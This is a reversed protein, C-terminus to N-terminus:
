VKSVKKKYIVRLSVAVYGYRLGILCYIFETKAAIIGMVYGLFIKLGGKSDRCFLFCM